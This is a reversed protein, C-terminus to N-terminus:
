GITALVALAALVLATWVLFRAVAFRREARGPRPPWADFALQHDPLPTPTPGVPHEGTLVPTTLLERARDLDWLPVLLRVGGTASALGLGAVQADLLAVPIGDGELMGRALEAEELRAYVALQGYDAGNELLGGEM